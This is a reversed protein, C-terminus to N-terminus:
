AKTVFLMLFWEALSFPFLLLSLLFPLQFGMSLQFLLGVAALGYGVIEDLYTTEHDIKYYNMESLYAMVNRAAMLGGALASHLASIVRALTWAISMSISYVIYGIVPASWKKYEVPLMKEVLPNVFRMAVPDVLKAISTGLTIAKAFQIKLTAIVALFSAQLGGIASNFRNPDITRLFLLTKRTMLSSASIQKVDAVGDGDADVEDDKKNAIQITQFDEYLSVLCLRTPEWGINRYAEVAAILTMFSGGFFCMIIGTFFPLLLDPRHHKISDYWKLTKYYANVLIPILIEIGEAVKIVVPTVKAVHPKINAPALEEVAVMLQRASEGFGKTDTSSASPAMAVKQEQEQQKEIETSSLEDSM